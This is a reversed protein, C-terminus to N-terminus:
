CMQQKVEDYSFGEKYAYDITAKYDYRHMLASIKAISKNKM